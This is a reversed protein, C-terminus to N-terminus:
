AARVAVDFAGWRRYTAALEPSMVARAAAAFQGGGDLHAQEATRCFHQTLEVVIHSSAYEGRVAGQPQQGQQAACPISAATLTAMGLLAYALGSAPIELVATSKM